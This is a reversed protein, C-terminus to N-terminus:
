GVKRPTVDVSIDSASVVVGENCLMETISNLDKFLFQQDRELRHQEQRERMRERRMMSCYWVPDVGKDCEMKRDTKQDQYYKYESQTMQVGWENKCKEEQQSTTGVDFLQDAKAAMLKYEEVIKGEERGAALRKRGEKFTKWLKTLRHTIGNLTLCYVTDHFWKSYVQKAVERLADDHKVNSKGGSTLYRLVGVVSKLTPLQSSPVFKPIPPFIVDPEFGGSKARTKPPM